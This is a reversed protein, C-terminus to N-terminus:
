IKKAREQAEYLKITEWDQYTRQYDKKKQAAIYMSQPIPFRGTQVIGRIDAPTPFEPSNQLWFKTAKVVDDAPFDALVNHFMRNIVEYAEPARGYIKQLTFCGLLLNDFQEQQQRSERM